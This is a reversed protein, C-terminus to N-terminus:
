ITNSFFWQGVILNMEFVNKRNRGYIIHCCFLFDDSVIIKARSICVPVFPLKASWLLTMREYVFLTGCDSAILIMLNNNSELM